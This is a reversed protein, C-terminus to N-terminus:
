KRGFHTILATLLEATAPKATLRLHRFVRSLPPFQAMRDRLYDTTPWLTLPDWDRGEPARRGLWQDLFRSFINGIGANGSGWLGKCVGFVQAKQGNYWGGAVERFRRDGAEWRERDPYVPKGMDLPENESEQAAAYVGGPFMGADEMASLLVIPPVPEGLLVSLALQRVTDLPPPEVHVTTIGVAPKWGGGVQPWFSLDDVWKEEDVLSVRVLREIGTRLNQMNRETQTPPRNAM